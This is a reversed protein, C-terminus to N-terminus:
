TWNESSSGSQNGSHNYWSLTEGTISSHEKKEVDRGSDATVLTKQDLDAKGCYRMGHKRVMDGLPLKSDQMKAKGYSICLCIVMNAHCGLLLKAFLM